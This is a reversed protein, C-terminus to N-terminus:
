NLLMVPISILKLMIVNHIILVDVYKPIMLKWANQDRKILVVILIKAVNKVYEM